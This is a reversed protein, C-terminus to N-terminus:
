STRLKFLQAQWYKGRELLVKDTDDDNQVSFKEILQIIYIYIYIYRFLLCLCSFDEKM